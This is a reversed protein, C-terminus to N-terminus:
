ITVHKPLQRVEVCNATACTGDQECNLHSQLASTLRSTKERLYLRVNSGSSQTRDVVAFAFFVPNYDIDSGRLNFLGLVVFFIFIVEPQTITASFFNVALYYSVDRIYM